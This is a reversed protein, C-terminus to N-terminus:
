GTCIAGEMVSPYTDVDLANPIPSSIAERSSNPFSILTISDM